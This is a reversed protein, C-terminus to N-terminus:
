RTEHEACISPPPAEELLEWDSGSLAGDTIERVGSAAAGGTASGAGEESLHLM